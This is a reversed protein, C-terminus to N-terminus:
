DDAVEQEMPIRRISRVAVLGLRHEHRAHREGLPLLSLRSLGRICKDRTDRLHRAFCYFITVVRYAGGTLRCFPIPRDQPPIQRAHRAFAALSLVSIRGQGKDRSSIRWIQLLNAMNM